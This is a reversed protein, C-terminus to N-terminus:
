KRLRGARQLETRFDAVLKERWADSWLGRKTLYNEMFDLPDAGQLKGEILTPGHGQRARRTAEQMVRYVAVVDSGDVTIAPAGCGDAAARLEEAISRTEVMCVLPLKREAAFAVAEKWGDNALLDEDLLCLAVNSQKQRKLALALGAGIGLQLPGAQPEQRAKAHASFIEELPAGRVMRALSSRPSPAICDGSLLDCVTGALVAEAGMAPGSHATRERGRATPDLKEQLMRCKVMAAYLAKLKQANLLSSAAAPPTPGQAPRKAKGAQGNSFTARQNGRM